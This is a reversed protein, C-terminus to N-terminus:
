REDEEQREDAADHNSARVFSLAGPATQHARLCDDCVGEPREHARLEAGCFRCVTALSRRSM